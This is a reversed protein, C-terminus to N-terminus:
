TKLEKYAEFCFNVLRKYKSFLSLNSWTVGSNKVLNLEPIQFRLYLLNKKLIIETVHVNPILSNDPIRNWIYVFKDFPYIRVPCNVDRWFYKNRLFVILELILTIFSRFIGDNFRKRKGIIIQNKELNRFLNIFSEFEINLDADITAIYNFSKDKIVENKLRILSRGHGLNEKNNKLITTKLDNTNVFKDVVVLSDDSSNDDHLFLEIEYDYYTSLTKIYYMTKNLNKSENYFPASIAIKNNM